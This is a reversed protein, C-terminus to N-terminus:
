ECENCRDPCKASTADIRAADNRLIKPSGSVTKPNKTESTSRRLWRPRWRMRRVIGSLVGQAQDAEMEPPIKQGTKERGMQLREEEQKPVSVICWRLLSLITNPTRHPRGNVAVNAGPFAKFILSPSTPLRCQTRFPHCYMSSSKTNRTTAIAGLPGVVRGSLSGIATTPIKRAGRWFLRWWISTGDRCIIRTSDIAWFFRCRGM